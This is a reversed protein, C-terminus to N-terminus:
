TIEEYLDRYKKAIRLHDYREVARSRAQRGLQDKREDDQLTWSLGRAFDEPDYPEALYGTQEHVITDSPGTADFAVVPTGSALSETVTQGFGEYRSPVATVDASSYLLSLSQEDDLYGIYHTPLGFDPPQEPEGTGFIVLETDDHQKALSTLSAQLPEFGKRSDSLPGVSGFLILKRNQPLDFLERGIEPNNPRFIGTDLGNPIVKIRCDAFLSSDRACSALWTSPAVITLDVADLARRKRAMTVRSLDLSRESELKPCEGCADRYRNCGDSYHCGGTMPWMDPLRWLLPVDFDSLSSVSMYGGAVWNLHVVDPNMAAIRKPLRDPLWDLSFPGVDGHFRLPIADVIPRIRALAKSTKSCPGLISPDSRSRHRVFM